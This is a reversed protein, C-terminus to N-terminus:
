RISASIEVEAGKGELLKKYFGSVAKFQNDEEIGNPQFIIYIRIGNLTKLEVQSDFYGKVSDPDAKLLNFKREDYFSMEDTNEMLDSYILLVKRTSSSQNLRNLEKAIPFYVSSNDKGTSKKGNSTIIEAISSKFGKIEKDRDIENSLWENRAELRVEKAQNFSVDTLDSFHLVGGNWRSQLSFLSLIGDADPQVLHRDTIDRLVSVETIVPSQSTCDAILFIVAVVALAIIIRKM